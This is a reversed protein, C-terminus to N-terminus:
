PTPPMKRLEHAVARQFEYAADIPRYGPCETGCDTCGKAMVLRKASRVMRTWHKGLHHGCYCHDVQAIFREAARVPTEVTPCDVVRKFPTPTVTVPHLTPDLAPISPPDLVTMPVGRLDPRFLRSLFGLM